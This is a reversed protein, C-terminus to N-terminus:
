STEAKLASVSAMSLKQKTRQMLKRTVSVRPGLDILGGSNRTLM